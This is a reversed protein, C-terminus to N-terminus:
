ENSAHHSLTLLAVLPITRRPSLERTM